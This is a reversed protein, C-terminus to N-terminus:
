SPCPGSRRTKSTPPCTKPNSAWPRGSGPVPPSKTLEWDYNLLLHFYGNDWQTPNTTWAGELGSTVTDRGVGRTTHNNWGTGQEAIDAGEPEPGLGAADGNGHAKGVTHGGATLAVTEEDNMAMRAFTERVDHATRAPDPKGDVGQPNVYILGMVVAALPNQLSTRDAPNEYRQDTLWEKESGWWTDKEPHWIDERGFGFGYTKLGMSEYAITGALAM